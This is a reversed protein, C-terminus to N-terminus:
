IHSCALRYRLSTVGAAQEALHKAFFSLAFTLCDQGPFDWHGHSFRGQQAFNQFDELGSGIVWARGVPTDVVWGNIGCHFGDLSIILQLTPCRLLDYNTRIANILPLITADVEARSFGGVPTPPWRLKRVFAIIKRADTQRGAYAIHFREQIKIIKQMPFAGYRPKRDQKRFVRIPYREFLEPNDNSVMLDGVVVPAKEFLIVLTM